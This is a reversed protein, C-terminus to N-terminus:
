LGDRRLAAKCEAYSPLRGTTGNKNGKIITILSNYNDVIHSPSMNSHHWKGNLSKGDIGLFVKFWKRMGIKTEETNKSKNEDKSKYRQLIKGMMHREKGIAIKFDYENGRSIKYEESFIALLSDIFDFRKGEAADAPSTINPEKTSLKEKKSLLKEKVKSKEEKSEKVKSQPNNNANIPTETVNINCLSANKYASVDILTFEETLVVKERRKTAELYNSQIQTSTLINFSEFVRKDFLSRRLLGAVIEGVLNGELGLSEALLFKKDENWEYYYGNKEYILCLLSLFVMLGKFGFEAKILKVKDNQFITVDLPFYDLGIEKPRAM